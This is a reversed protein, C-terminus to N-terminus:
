RSNESVINVDKPSNSVIHLKKRSFASLITTELSRDPKWFETYQYFSYLLLSQTCIWLSWSRNKENTCYTEHYHYKQKNTQTKETNQQM